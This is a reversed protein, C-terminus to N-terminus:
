FHEFGILIYKSKQQFITRWQYREFKIQPFFLNRLLSSQSYWIRKLLSNPPLPLHPCGSSIIIEILWINEIIISLWNNWLFSSQSYWISKLLSTPPPSTYSCGSPLDLNDSFQSIQFQRLKLSINDYACLVWPNSATVLINSRQHHCM